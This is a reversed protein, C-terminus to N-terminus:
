AKRASSAARGLMTQRHAELLGLDWWGDIFEKITKRKSKGRTLPKRPLQHAASDGPSVPPPTVVMEPLVPLPQIPLPSAEVIQVRKQRTQATIPPPPFWPRAANSALPPAVPVGVDDSDSDSSDWRKEKALVAATGLSKKISSNNYCGRVM